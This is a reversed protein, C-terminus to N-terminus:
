FCDEWGAVGTSWKRAHPQLAPCRLSGFSPVLEAVHTLTVPWYVSWYLGAVLQHPEHSLSDKARVVRIVVLRWQVQFRVPHRCLVSETFCAGQCLVAATFEYSEYKHHPWVERSSDSGPHETFFLLSSHYQHGM